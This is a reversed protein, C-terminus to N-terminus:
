ECCDAVLCGVVPHMAPSHRHANCYCASEAARAALYADVAAGLNALFREESKWVDRMRWAVAADLVAQQRQAMLREGGRPDAGSM